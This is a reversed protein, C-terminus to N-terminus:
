ITRLKKGDGATQIDTMTKDKFQRHLIESVFKLAKPDSEIDKTEWLRQYRPGMSCVIKKVNSFWNTRGPKDLDLLKQYCKYM